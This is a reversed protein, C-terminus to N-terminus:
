TSRRAQAELARLLSQLKKEDGGYLERGLETCKKSGYCVIRSSSSPGHSLAWFSRTTTPPDATLLSLRINADATTWLQSPPLDGTTGALRAAGPPQHLLNTEAHLSQGTSALSGRTWKPRGRSALFSSILGTIPIQFGPVGESVSLRPPADKSPLLPQKNDTPATRPERVEVAVSVSKVSASSRGTPMEWTNKWTRPLLLVPLPTTGLLYGKLARAQARTLERNSRDHDKAVSGLGPLSPKDLLSGPLRRGTRPTRPLSVNLTAGVSQSVEKELNQGALQKAVESVSPADQGREGMVLDGDQM